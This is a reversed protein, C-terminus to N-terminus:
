CVAAFANANKSVDLVGHIHKGRLWKWRRFTAACAFDRKKKPMRGSRDTLGSRDVLSFHFVGRGFPWAYCCLGCHHIQAFIRTILWSERRFPRSLGNTPAATSNPACRPAPPFGAAIEAADSAMDTALEAALEPDVDAWGTIKLFHAAAAELESTTMDARDAVTAVDVPYGSELGALSACETCNNNDCLPGAISVLEGGRTTLVHM